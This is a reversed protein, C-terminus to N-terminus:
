IRAAELYFPSNYLNESIARGDNVCYYNGKIKRIRKITELVPMLPDKESMSCMLYDYGKDEFERQINALLEKFIDANNSQTLICHLNLYQLVTGSAPLKQGGFFISLLNYIPKILQYKRSYGVIRTQKFPKQDWVGCIGILIDADFALFFDEMKIGQYYSEGLAAFDYYPYYNTKSSEEDFFVQMIERDSTQARRVKIEGPKRENTKFNLMYTVLSGVYHYYPIKAIPKRQAAKDILNIMKHNETFVVTQAPLKDKATVQQFHKILLYFLRGDQKDPHIRLDSMYRVNAIRGEYWLRRVGINMVALISKTSEDYGVYVDPKECQVCAGTYYNPERELALSINGSVPIRCLAKIGEEFEPQYPLIKIM